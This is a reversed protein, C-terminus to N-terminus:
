RCESWSRSPGSAPCWDYYEVANIHMEALMEAKRAYDTGMKAWDTYFGYRLDDAPDRPASFSETARVIRGTEDKFLGIIQFGSYRSVESFVVTTAGTFSEAARKELVTGLGDILTLSGRWRSADSALVTVLVEQGPAYVVRDTRLRIPAASESAAPGCVAGLLLLMAVVRGDFTRPPMFRGKM